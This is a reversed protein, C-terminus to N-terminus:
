RCTVLCVTTACPLGFEPYRNFDDSEETPDVIEVNNKRYWEDVMKIEDGELGTSDGNVLYCLAWDPIDLKFITKGNWEMSDGVQMKDLDSKSNEIGEEIGDDVKDCLWMEFERGDFPYEKYLLLRGDDVEPVADDGDREVDDYTLFADAYYVGKDDAFVHMAYWCDNGNTDAAYADFGEWPGVYKIDDYMEEDCYRKFDDRGAIVNGLESAICGIDLAARKMFDMDM